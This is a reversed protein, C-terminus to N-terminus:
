QRQVGFDTESKRHHYPHYATDDHRGDDVIAQQPFLLCIRYVREISPDDRVSFPQAKRSVTKDERCRRGKGLVWRRRGRSSLCAAEGDSSALLGFVVLHEGPGVADHPRPPIGRATM